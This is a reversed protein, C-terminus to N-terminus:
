YFPRAMNRLFSEYFTATDIDIGACSYSTPVSETLLDLDAVVRWPFPLPVERRNIKVVRNCSGCVDHQKSAMVECVGSACFKCTKRDKRGSTEYSVVAGDRRFVEVRWTANMTLTTYADDVMKQSSLDTSTTRTDAMFAVNSVGYASEEEVSKVIVTLAHSSDKYTDIVDDVHESKYEVYDVYSEDEHQVRVNCRVTRANVVRAAVEEFDARVDDVALKAQQFQKAALGDNTCCACNIWQSRLGCGPANCRAQLRKGVSRFRMSGCGKGTCPKVESRCDGAPNRDDYQKDCSTCEVMNVFRYVISRANVHAATEKEHCDRILPVLDCTHSCDYVAAEVHCGKFARRGLKSKWKGLSVDYWPDRGGLTAGLPIAVGNFVDLANATIFWPAQLLLIALRRSELEMEVGTCGSGTRVTPSLAHSVGQGCHYLDDDDLGLLLWVLKGRTEDWTRGFIDDWTPVGKTPMAYAELVVASFRM